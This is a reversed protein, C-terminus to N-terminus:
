RSTDLVTLCPRGGAPAAPPPLEVWHGHERCAAALACAAISVAVARNDPRTLWCLHSELLARDGNQAAAILALLLKEDPMLLRSGPLGVRLKRRSVWAVAQLFARLTALVELGEGPFVAAFERAILRCGEQGAAIRRMAEILIRGAPGGECPGDRLEDMDRCETTVVHGIM